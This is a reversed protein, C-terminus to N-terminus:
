KGALLSDIATKITSYPVAGAIKQTGVYFSPASSIGAAVDDSKDQDADAEHQGTSLCKDFADTDLGLAAAYKELNDNSFAGSNENGQHGYLYDYFEWFKGQDAACLSAEAASASESGLFPFQKFVLKVKGTNVYDKILNPIVPQWSPSNQQMVGVLKQNQGSVAGCYPCQFDAIEVVTVPADAQGMVPDYPQIKIAQTQQGAPPVSAAAQRNRVFLCVALVVILVLLIAVLIIFLIKQKKSM